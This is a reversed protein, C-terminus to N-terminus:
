SAMSLTAMPGLLAGGRGAPHGVRRADAGLRASFLAGDWDVAGGSGGFERYEGGGWLTLGEVLGGVPNLPM